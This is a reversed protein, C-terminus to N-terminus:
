TDDGGHKNGHVRHRFLLGKIPEGVELAAIDLAKLVVVAGVISAFFYRTMWGIPTM